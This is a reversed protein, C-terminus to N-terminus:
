RRDTKERAVPSNLKAANKEELCGTVITDPLIGATVTTDVVNTAWGHVKGCNGGDWLPNATGTSDTWNIVNGSITDEACAKNAFQNWIYLGTNTFPMQKSYLKNGLIKIHSGSAVAIGYQGPNVLINDKIIMYSGGSDGAMIGGGTKSPGGGRIWNGTIQVPDEPTGHTEYMNIIDEPHSEGAINECINDNVRNGKGTVNDFQVM